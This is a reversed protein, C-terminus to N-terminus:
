GRLTFTPRSAVNCYLKIADQSRNTLKWGEKRKWRPRQVREELKRALFYNARPEVFKGKDQAVVLIREAVFLISPADYNGNALDCKPIKGRPNFSGVLCKLNQIKRKWTNENRADTIFELFNNILGKSAASRKYEPSKIEVKIFFTTILTALRGSSLEKLGCYFPCFRRRQM